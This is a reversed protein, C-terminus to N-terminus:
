LKDGLRWLKMEDSLTAESGGLVDVVVVQNLPVWGISEDTCRNGGLYVYLGNPSKREVCSERIADNGGLRFIIRTGVNM